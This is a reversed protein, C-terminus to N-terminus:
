ATPSSLGKRLAPTKKILKKSEKKYMEMCLATISFGRVTVWLKVIDQLLEIANESDVCQSILLWRWQIEENEVLREIILQEFEEKSNAQKVLHAPLLIRVEKELLVFFGFTEDNLPFLGGRNVKELWERTYSLFDESGVDSHM